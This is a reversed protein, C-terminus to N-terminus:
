AAKAKKMLMINQYFETHYERNGNARSNCSCCLTILNDPHCNKKVYDIHHVTLKNHTGWCDPNQCCYNDREKIEDKYEKVWLCCYEQFSLGGKWNPCLEGSLRPSNESMKRRTEATHPIGLRRQNGKMRERMKAKAEESATKGRNAESLKMRHEKSKTKGKLGESIKRKHDKSFPGLKIGMKAKSLKDRIEQSRPGMKKGLTPHTGTDLWRQNRLKASESMKKKTEESHRVGTFSM